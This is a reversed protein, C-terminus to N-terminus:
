KNNSSENNDKTRVFSSFLTAVGAIANICGICLITKYARTREDVSFVGAKIKETMEDAGLYGVYALLILFLSIMITVAGSIISVIKANEKGM